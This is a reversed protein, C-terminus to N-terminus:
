QPWRTLSSQKATIADGSSRGRIRRVFWPGLHARAWNAHSAARAATGPRVVPRPTRWSDSGLGLAQLAARAALAHGAPSLHLRDDDWYPDEDFVAVDWFDVLYCGYHGAIARVAQDYAWIRGRVLGMLASRRSPDGFSFLLVDSGQARLSRVAREVATSAANLDFGSRLCDNVGAAFSVLDPSMALALPVQEDSVQQVLRGRIALNAYSFDPVRQALDDAVRDAWGRHRGSADTVDM